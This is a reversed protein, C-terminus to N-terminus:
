DEATAESQEASAAEVSKLWNDLDGMYGAPFGDNHGIRPLRLFKNLEHSTNAHIKEGFRIPVISDAEGHSQFVPGKYDKIAVASNFNNQMLWRVPIWPYKSAAVDPLSSFTRQLVLAKCGKTAALHTAVAGGLSQGILIVETPEIEMEDCFVDLAREADLKIGAENPSGESKGYGRYDFVMVNCELMTMLGIGAWGSAHAVNEANGHCYLVYRPIEREVKTRMLWAHIKTGDASTFEVDEHEFSPKWNGAPFKPAPYIMQNEMFVLAVVVLLYALSVAMLFKKLGKMFRERFSPKSDVVTEPNYATENM